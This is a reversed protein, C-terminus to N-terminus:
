FRHSDLLAKMQLQAEFSRGTEETHSTNTLPVRVSGPRYQSGTPVLGDNPYGAVVDFTWWEGFTELRYGLDLAGLAGLFDFFWNDSYWINSLMSYGIDELVTGIYFMQEGLQDSTPGSFLLRLPGGYYGTGADAVISYAYGVQESGVNSNLEQLFSSGPSLEDWSAKSGWINNQYINLGAFILSAGRLGYRLAAYRDLWSNYEWYNGIDYYDPGSRPFSLLSILGM